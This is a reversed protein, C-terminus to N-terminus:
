KVLNSRPIWQNFKPPYHLYKVYISDVGNIKEEKLIKDIRFTEGNKPENAKTLQEKYFYGVVPDGKLDELKYLIPMKGAHVRAIRFLQYNPSDFSKEFSQPGFEAHVHDGKQLVSKKAEYKKQNVKQQQFSVDEKLGHARDVKPDDEPTKIDSPRLNGIAPNPSKNIALVVQSFYKPWNQTTFARLLRYLRRKVIQIGKEAFAAKHRGTKVKFYIEEAEFFRKNGIFESGKDTELVDPKLGAKKFIKKFATRVTEADKGKLMECFLARSFVDVCLLFGVYNDYEFMIGLDGQWLRGVGHVMIPRRPFRKRVQRMEAVFDPDERLINFLESTSYHINKELGLSAQFNRVGSFCGSFKPDRWLQRIKEDSLRGTKNKLNSMNKRKQIRRVGPEPTFTM